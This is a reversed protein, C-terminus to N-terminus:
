LNTAMVHINYKGAPLKINGVRFQFPIDAELNGVIQARAKTPYM